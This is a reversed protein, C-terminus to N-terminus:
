RFHEGLYEGTDLAFYAMRRQSPIRLGARYETWIVLAAERERGEMDKVVVLSIPKNPMKKLVSFKIDRDENLFKMSNKEQTLRNPPEHAEPDGLCERCLCQCGHGDNTSVHIYLM